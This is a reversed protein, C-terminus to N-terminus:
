DVFVRHDRRERLFSFDDRLGVDLDILLAFLFVAAADFFDDVLLYM